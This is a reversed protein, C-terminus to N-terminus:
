LRKSLQFDPGNGAICRTIMRSTGEAAVRRAKSSRPSMSTKSSTGALSAFSSMSDPLTLTVPIGM